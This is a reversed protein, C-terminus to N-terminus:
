ATSAPTGLRDTLRIWDAVTLTEPRVTPDLGVARMVAHAEERGIQIGPVSPLLSGLQKRRRSFAHKVLTKFALNNSAGPRDHADMRVIASKIQPRPFFCAESITKLMRVDYRYQMLVSIVGYDKGGPGAALRAAVEQQVTAVMRTPRHASESLEVLLRSAISYPLNAVMRNVGRGLLTDLDVSLADAHIM